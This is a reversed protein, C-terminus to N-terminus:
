DAAIFIPIHRVTSADAGPSFDNMAGMGVCPRRFFPDLRLTLHDPWHAPWNSSTSCTDTRHVNPYRRLIWGDSTAHQPLIRYTVASSSSPSADTRGDYDVALCHNPKSRHLMINQQRRPGIARM